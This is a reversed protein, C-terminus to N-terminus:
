RPRGGDLYSRLLGVNMLGEEPTEPEPLDGTRVARMTTRVSIVAYRLAAFVLWYQLDQLRRGSLEEYRGVVEDWTFFGPLLDPMAYRDALDYFFHHLHLSWTVDVEPVGLAAMEWDVVANPAFDSWLVNGLRADGWNLSPPREPPRHQELWDLATEIIPYDVGERAWEYYWRQYGLHQATPTDGFQPRHLFAADEGTVDIAHLRALVSVMGDQLRARDAPDAETLWSGFVYPPMDPPPTGEVRDMVFFPAGMPGADPEFWRVTPVPVDSRAAVLRMASAQLALDYTPFVPTDSAEPEMRVVFREQRGAVLADVLLTESSMGTGEPVDLPRVAPDGDVRSALWAEFRTRLQERDRSSPVPVTAEETGTRPHGV